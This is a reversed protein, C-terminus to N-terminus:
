AAQTPLGCEVIGSPDGSGSEGALEAGARANRRVNGALATIRRLLGSTGASRFDPLAPRRRSAPVRRRGAQGAFQDVACHLMGRVRYSVGRICGGTVAGRCWGFLGRLILALRFAGAEPDPMAFWSCVMAAIETSLDQVAGCLGASLRCFCRYNEWLNMSM